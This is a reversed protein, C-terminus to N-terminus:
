VNFWQHMSWQNMSWQTCHQLTCCTAIFEINLSHIFENYPVPWAARPHRGVIEASIRKCFFCNMFQVRSSTYTVIKVIILTVNSSSLLFQKPDTLITQSRNRIIMLVVWMLWSFLECCGGFQVWVLWSCWECCGRVILSCARSYRVKLIKFLCYCLIFCAIFYLSFWM